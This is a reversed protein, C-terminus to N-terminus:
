IFLICLTEESRRKRGGGGGRSQVHGTQMNQMHLFFSFFQFFFLYQKAENLGCNTGNM